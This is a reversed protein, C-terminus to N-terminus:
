EALFGGINEILLHKKPNDCLGYLNLDSWDILLIKGSEFNGEFIALSCGAECLEWKSYKIKLDDFLAVEGSRSATSVMDMGFRRALYQEITGNLRPLLDPSVMADITSSEYGERIRLTALNATVDVLTFMLLNSGQMDIVRGARRLQDQFNAPVPLATIKVDM